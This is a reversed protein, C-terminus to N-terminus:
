AYLSMNSICKGVITLYLGKSSCSLFPWGKGYWAGWTKAYM